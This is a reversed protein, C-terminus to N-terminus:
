PQHHTDGAEIAIIAGSIYVIAGLLEAVKREKTPLRMSEQSKKAAQGLAFGVGYLRILDQMPQREFPQGQAHREAGKGRAAQDFARSLVDALSEYGPTCRIADASDESPLPKRKRPRAQEPAPRAPEQEAAPPAAQEPVVQTAPADDIALRYQRRRVDSPDPRADIAGMGIPYALSASVQNSEVDLADGLEASSFWTGAPRKSMYAIARAPTTGPQPQYTM